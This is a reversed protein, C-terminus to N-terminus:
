QLMYEQMKKPDAMDRESPRKPPPEDKEAQKIAAEIKLGTLTQM